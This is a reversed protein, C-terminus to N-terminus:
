FSPWFVDAIRPLILVIGISALLNVSHNDLVQKGSIHKVGEGPREVILGKENIGSYQLTAGFFSDLLSGIFGGFGGFLIIPWQPASLELVTTDVTCLIVVYYVLGVVLGGLFSCLLGMWSVGGNTGRPVRKWTTILFPDSKGLVTGFESAWTDGCCCAFAGLVGVSLWSSRYESNFDIPREGSGVELLHLLALQTALGCNCIAQAWGRQGGEKFDAEIKKKEVSRFKTAKSGTVFFTGVAAIYAYSSLTLIFGMVFGFIGGIINIGKKRYGWFLLLFPIVVALLWRWPSIGSRDEIHSESDPRLISYAVNIIWFMMFIPIACASLLVPVLVHDNRNEISSTM